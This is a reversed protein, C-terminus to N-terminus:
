WMLLPISCFWAYMDRVEFRRQARRKIRPREKDQTAKFKRQLYKLHTLFANEIQRMNKDSYNKRSKLGPAFVKAVSRNYPSHSNRRLDPRFNELDCCDLGDSPDYCDVEVERPLLEERFGDRANKRRM